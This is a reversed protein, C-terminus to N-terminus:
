VNTMFYKLIMDDFDTLNKGALLLVIFGICFYGCIVHKIRSINVVDISKNIFRKVDKPIHEVGFSDLFSDNNNLAHM